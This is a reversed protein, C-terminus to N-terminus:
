HLYGEAVKANKNIVNDATDLMKKILDDDVRAWFINENDGSWIHKTHLEFFLINDDQKFYVKREKEDSIIKQTFVVMNYKKNLGSYFATFKKAKTFIKDLDINENFRYHYLFVFDKKGRFSYLRSIKRELSKRQKDSEKVDHHTFEFGNMHLEHYIADSQNVITSRVVRADGVYDYKLNEPELLSEYKKEELSIAYDLNSRGHSYPSSFSKFNHRALINDTLCNEGLSLWLSKSFKLKISGKISNVKKNVFKKLTKM